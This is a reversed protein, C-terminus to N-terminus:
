AAREIPPRRGTRSVYSVFRLADIDRLTGVLMRADSVVALERVHRATMTAFALGLSQWEDVSCWNAAMRDVASEGNADILGLAARARPLTGLFRQKEDVVAVGFASTEMDLARAAVALPADYSVCVIPRVLSLGVPLTAAIQAAGAEQLRDRNPTPESPSSSTPLTFWSCDVTISRGTVDGRIAGGCGCTACRSLPVTHGSQECFVLASAHPSGDRLLTLRRRIPLAAIGVGPTTMSRPESCRGNRARNRTDRSSVRRVVAAGGLRPQILEDM